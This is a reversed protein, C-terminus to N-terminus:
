MNHMAYTTIHFELIEWSAPVSRTRTYKNLYNTAAQFKLAKCIQNYVFHNITFPLFVCVFSLANVRKPNKCIGTLYWVSMCMLIVAAHLRSRVLSSSHARACACVSKSRALTREGIEVAHITMWCSDSVTLPLLLARHFTWQEIKVTAMLIQKKREREREEGIMWRCM